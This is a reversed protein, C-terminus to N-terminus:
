YTFRINKLGSTKHIGGREDVIVCQAGPTGDVLKLGKDVGLVFVATSLADATICDDAIVTASIVGRAPKGTSPNIIHHYRVGNIEKFREYDGSTAAAKDRLPIVGLFESSKRPHKVAIKWTRKGFVRIDGGANVLGEAAGLAMMEEIARDVAYGKVFAGFDLIIGPEKTLFNGDLNIRSVGSAARAAAINKATPVQEGAKRWLRSLAGLAPDMTELSRSSIKLAFKILYLTEGDLRQPSQASNIKYITSGRSYPAYKQDIRKMELFSADFIKEDTGEPAKIEVLTDMMLRQRSEIKRERISCGAATITVAVAAVALTRIKKACNRGSRYTENSNM